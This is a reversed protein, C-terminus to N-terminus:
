VRSFCAWSDPLLSCPQVACWLSDWYVGEIPIADDDISQPKVVETAPTAHDCSQKVGPPWGISSNTASENSNSGIM